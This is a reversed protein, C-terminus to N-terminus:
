NSIDWFYEDEMLQLVYLWVRLWVRFGFEQSRVRTDNSRITSRGLRERPAWYHIMLLGNHDTRHADHCPTLTGPRHRLSLPQVTLYVSTTQPLHLEYQLSGVSGDDELFFCGRVCKHHWEQLLLRCCTQKVSSVRRECVCVFWARVGWARKLRFKRAIKNHARFWNTDQCLGSCVAKSFYKVLFDM